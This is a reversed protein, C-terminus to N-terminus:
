KKLFDARLSMIGLAAFLAAELWSQKQLAEILAISFFLIFVALNTFKINNM